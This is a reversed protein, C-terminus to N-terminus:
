KKSSGTGFTNMKFNAEVYRVTKNKRLKELTAEEDKEIEILFLPTSGVKDIMQAGVAGLLADREASTSEQTFSILYQHPVRPAKSSDVKSVTKAEKSPGSGSAQTRLSASLGVFLTFIFLASYM